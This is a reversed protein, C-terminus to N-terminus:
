SNNTRNRNENRMQRKVYVLPNADKIDEDSFVVTTFDIGYLKTMKTDKRHMVTPVSAHTLRRADHYSSLFEKRTIGLAVCIENLDRAAIRLEATESEKAVLLTVMPLIDRNNTRKRSTGNENWGLDYNKLSTEVMEFIPSHNPKAWNDVPLQGKRMLGIIQLDIRDAETTHPERAVSELTMRTAANRILNPYKGSALDALAFLIRFNDAERKVLRSGDNLTRTDETLLKDDLLRGIEKNYWQEIDNAIRNGHEEPPREQQKHEMETQEKDSYGFLRFKLLRSAVEESPRYSDLGFLAKPYFTQYVDNSTGDKNALLSSVGPAHGNSLIEDLQQVDTSKAKGLNHFQDIILTEFKGGILFKRTAAVSPTGIYANPTVTKLARALESKGCDPLHSVVHPYVTHIKNKFPYRSIFWASVAWLALIGPEDEHEWQGHVDNFLLEIDELIRNLESGYDRNSVPKGKVPNNVPSM